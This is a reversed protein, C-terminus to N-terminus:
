PGGRAAEELAQEVVERLQPSWGAGFARYPAVDVRAMPTNPSAAGVQAQCADVAGASEDYSRSRFTFLYIDRTSGDRPRVTLHLANGALGADDCGADGGVATVIELGGRVLGQTVAAVGGPTASPRATGCAMLGVLTSVVLAFRFRATVAVSVAVRAASDESLEANLAGSRRACGRWRTAAGTM